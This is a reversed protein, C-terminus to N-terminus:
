KSRLFKRITEFIKQYWRKEEVKVLAVENQINNSKRNKFLDDPNYKELKEKEVKQENLEHMKKMYEKQKENLLYEMTLYSLMAITKRNLNQEKLEKKEDYEWIYDKNKEEKIDNRIDKPIKELDEKSLHNLVEDLEVLCKEYEM